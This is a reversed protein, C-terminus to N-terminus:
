SENGSSKLEKIEQQLQRIKSGLLENQEEKAIKEIAEMMRAYLKERYEANIAKNETQKMLENQRKIQDQMQNIMGQLNKLEDIKDLLEDLEPIDQLKMAFETFLKREEGDQSSQAINFLMQSVSLRQTQMMENPIAYVKYRALKTEKIAEMTLNVENIKGQSDLFTYAVDPKLESMLFELLINGEQQNALSIHDYQLMIRQMSATEYKTLSSFTEIKNDAPTQNMIAPDIGTTEYLGQSFLQLMEPYFNSLQGPIDKEPIFVQDGIVVPTYLFVKTPDLLGNELQRKEAPTISNRPAKYGANTTVYGNLLLLQLTSDYAQQNPIGYHVFGKSKYPKGGWEFFRVILPYETIPLFTVDIIYDGLLTTKRVYIGEDVRIPNQLLSQQVPFLNEAFLKRIGLDPDEILYCKTFVKDYFERTWVTQMYMLNEPARRNPSGSTGMRTFQEWVVKQEGDKIYVENIQDIKTQYLRQAEALPIDKDIFFGQMRRLTRDTCNIDLIVESNHIYNIVAPFITEYPSAPQEIIKSGMGSILMDKISEEEAVISMSDIVIGQRLKDMVIAHNKYKDDIAVMRSSQRKRALYAIATSTTSYIKNISSEIGTTERIRKLQEKNFPTNTDDIDGLFYNEYKAVTAHFAKAVAFWNDYIQRLQEPILAFKIM